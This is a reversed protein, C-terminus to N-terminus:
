RWTPMLGAKACSRILTLFLAVGVNEGSCKPRLWRGLRAYASPIFGHTNRLAPRRVPWGQAKLFLLVRLFTPRRDATTLIPAWLTPAALNARHRLYQQRYKSPCGGPRM